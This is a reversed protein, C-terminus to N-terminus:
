DQNNCIYKEYDDKIQQIAQEHGHAINVCYNVCQLHKIVSIQDDSLKGGKTRKMEIFLRWEPIFLDPIGPTLGMAKLKAAESPRRYGGNPIHFILIGPHNRKFWQILLMQERNESCIKEKNNLEM